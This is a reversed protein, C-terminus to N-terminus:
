TEEESQLNREIEEIKWEIVQIERKIREIERKIEQIEILALEEKTYKHTEIAKYDQKSLVPKVGFNSMSKKLKSLQKKVYESLPNSYIVVGNSFDYYANGFEKFAKKFTGSQENDKFAEDLMANLRKYHKLAKYDSKLGVLFIVLLLSLVSIGALLNSMNDKHLFAVLVMIGVLVLSGYKKVRIDFELGQLNKPSKDREVMQHKSQAENKLNM